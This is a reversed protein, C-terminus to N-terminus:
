TLRAILVAQGIGYVMLAVVGWTKMASMFELVRDNFVQQKEAASALTAIASENSTLRREHDLRWQIMEDADM